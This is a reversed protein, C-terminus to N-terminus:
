YLSMWILWAGLIILIIASVIQKKKFRQAQEHIHEPFGIKMIGKILTAWGLITIVARWDFVWINHLIVTALGLFLSVYGTSVTFLKNDTREITKGLLKSKLSLIGLIIYLLGFFRAFFISVDM